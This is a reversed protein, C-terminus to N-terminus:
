IWYPYLKLDKILICWFSSESKAIEQNGQWLSRSLTQSVSEQVRSVNKSTWITIPPMSPSSGMALRIEFTNHDEFNKILEFMQSRNPFINFNFKRWYRAQVIKLFESEYNTKVSFIKQEM